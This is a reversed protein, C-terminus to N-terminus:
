VHLKTQNIQKRQISEQLATRVIATRLGTLGQRVHADQVIMWALQKKQEMKLTEVPVTKAHVVEQRM